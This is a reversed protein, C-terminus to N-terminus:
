VKVLMATIYMFASGCALGAITAPSTLASSGRGDSRMLYAAGEVIVQLIAGAGIALALASWQPAYALSGLWLGIVAPGGALLALAAFIWLPPTAKLLPASIGIGETINHLMFGLVLFSGLGAAGAAFAAGIALGEGLNHLGIGLSIFTALALGTPVGQRRGASILLLFSAAAALVVM